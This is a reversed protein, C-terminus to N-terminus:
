KNMLEKIEDVSLNLKEAAREVTIDGSSVMEIIASVRGIDIGKEIGKEIGRAIGEEEAAAIRTAQDHEYLDRSDALLQARRDASVRNYITESMRIVEGGNEIISEVYDKMAPDGKYKLYLAFRELADASEPDTDSTVKSLEVFHYELLETMVTGHVDEKLLFKSHFKNFEPFITRNVFSIVISKKMKDYKQGKDLSSNVIKSGNFLARNRYYTLNDMQMEIDFLEDGAAAHIDMVIEHSFMFEDMTAPNEVTVKTIPNDERGLVTNLLAVLARNSEETGSGYTYRFVWDDTLKITAMKKESEKEARAIVVRPRM